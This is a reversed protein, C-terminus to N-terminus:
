TLRMPLVLFPVLLTFVFLVAVAALALILLPFATQMAITARYAFRRRSSDAIQRMAWALNGATAASRLAAAEAPRLLRAAALSDIWDAGGAIRDHAERLRRHIAWKPHTEAVTGITEPLPRGREVGISLADLVNAADLPRLMRGVGPPDWPVGYGLRLLAYVFLALILLQSPAAFLGGYDSFAYLLQMPASPPFDLDEFIKRFSPVIKLLMFTMMGLMFALVGLFYLAKGALAHRAAELRDQARTFADNSRRPDPRLTSGAGGPPGGSRLSVALLPLADRPILGPTLSLADVLPEGDRLQAALQKAKQEALPGLQGSFATLTAEVPIGRDLSTTLLGLMTERRARVGQIAVMPAIIALLVVLPINGVVLLLALPLLVVFVLLVPRVVQVFLGVGRRGDAGARRRYAGLAISAALALLWLGALGGVVLYADSLKM